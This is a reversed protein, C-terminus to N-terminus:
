NNQMYITNFKGDIPNANIYVNTHMLDTIFKNPIQYFDCLSESTYHVNQRIM